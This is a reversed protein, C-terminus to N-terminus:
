IDFKPHMPVTSLGRGGDPVLEASNVTGVIYTATQGSGILSVHSKLYLPTSGINYVGPAVSVVYPNTRDADTIADVADVPNTFDGGSKAM